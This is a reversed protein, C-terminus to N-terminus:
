YNKIVPFSQIVQGQDLVSIYYTGASLHSMQIETLANTLEMQNIVKGSADTMQCKFEDLYFEDIQLSISNVTPNPFVNMNLQIFENEFVGLLIDYTQQMGQYAAGAGNATIDSYAAEGLTYGASGGSGIADGGSSVVGEQAYAGTVCFSLATLFIKPRHKM